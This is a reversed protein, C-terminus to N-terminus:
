CFLEGGYTEKAWFTEQHGFFPPDELRSRGGYQSCPLACACSQLLCAPTGCDEPIRRGEAAACGFLLKQQHEDQVCGGRGLM